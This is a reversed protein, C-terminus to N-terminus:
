KESVSAEFLRRRQAKLLLSEPDTPDAYRARKGKKFKEKDKEKLSDDNRKISEESEANRNAEQEHEKMQEIRLKKPIRFVEKLLEWSELLKATLFYIQEMLEDDACDEGTGMQTAVSLNKDGSAPTECETKVDKLQDAVKTADVSDKLPEVTENSVDTVEAENKCEDVEVKVDVVADLVKHEVSEVKVCDVNKVDEVQPSNGDSIPTGSGSDSPSEEPSKVNEKMTSKTNAWKQVVVIVKSDQLMNKNPIPLAELTKLIQLRFGWEEQANNTVIDCMWTHLLKLGHYDLFLRRCARDGNRLISLLKSRADLLKARVMLRSFRLTHAQNKLNTEMLNAIEHDLDPDEMIETKKIKFKKPKPEPKPKRVKKVPSSKKKKILVIPKEDVAPLKNQSEEQSVTTIPDTLKSEVVTEPGQLETTPPVM